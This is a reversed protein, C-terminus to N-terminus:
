QVFLERLYDRRGHLIRHIVVVQDVVRYFVLYPQVVVFRYGRQVLPYDEDSLVVGLDPFEALMSIQRDLKELMIEAAAVDDVSIFSFIEDMDDVAVPTYRIENRQRM